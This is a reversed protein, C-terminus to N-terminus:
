RVPSARPPRPRPEPAKWSLYVLAALLPLQVVRLTIGWIEFPPERGGSTAFYILYVWVQFVAAGIWLWRRDTSALLLALILFASGASFGFLRLDVTEGSKSGGIDLIGLGILFYIVCMASAALVGVYRVRQRALHM